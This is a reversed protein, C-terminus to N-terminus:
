CSCIHFLFSIKSSLGYGLEHLRDLREDLLPFSIGDFWELFQSKSLNQLQDANFANEDHELVQKLRLALVDYEISNSPWFCFNLCDLVFIYQCTLPGDINADACYHWNNSDWDCNQNELSFQSSFSKLVDTSAIQV